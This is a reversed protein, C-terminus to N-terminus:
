NRWACSGCVRPRCCWRWTTMEEPGEWHTLQALAQDFRPGRCEELALRLM